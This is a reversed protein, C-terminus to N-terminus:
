KFISNNLTANLEEASIIVNKMLENIQISMQNYSEMYDTFELISINRKQFNILVGEYVIEFDSIMSETLQNFNAKSINWKNLSESVETKLRLITLQNDVKSQDLLVQSQKIRGQNRNWLPIPIGVTLNVQNQFAGGRQDYSTGLNLDPIALSKQWKVNWENSEINKLSLKYDPRNQIAMSDLLDISLIEQSAYKQVITENLIPVILQEENLLLKLISQQEYSNNIIEIRSNKFNILLSQLRVLEQLPLNGKKTQVEYANVLTDINSIQIDTKQIKKNNFYIFYFSRRLQIKLNRLLDQFELEALEENVKAYNVQNKKKNGLYIVQQIAFAKQGKSGLDFYHNNQPNIANAEASFIPNDWLKAQITLAKSAEINFNSALLLLNNKLFQEECQELTYEKQSLLNFSFLLILILFNNVKLM